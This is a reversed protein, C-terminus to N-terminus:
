VELTTPHKVSKRTLRRGVPLRHLVTDLAMLPRSRITSAMSPCRGQAHSRANQPAACGMGAASSAPQYIAFPNWTLRWRWYTRAVPNDAGEVQALAALLEPTIYNTSYERFLPAYQRWTEEPTKNMAGSVPLFMETPKRVVQYVLNAACFVALITAAIVIIRMAPPAANLKRQPPSSFQKSPLGYSRVPKAIVIWGPSALIPLPTSTIGREVTFCTVDSGLAIQCVEADSSL